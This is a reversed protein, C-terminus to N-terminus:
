IESGKKHEYIEVNNWLIKMVLAVLILVNQYRGEYILFNIYHQILIIKILYFIFHFNM